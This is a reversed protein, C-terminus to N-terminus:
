SDEAILNLEFLREYVLASINNGERDLAASLQSKPLLTLEVENPMNNLAAQEESPLQARGENFAKQIPTLIKVKNKAIIDTLLSGLNNHGVAVPFGSIVESKVQLNYFLNLIEEVQINTLTM